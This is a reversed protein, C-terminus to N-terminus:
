RLNRSHAAEECDGKEQGDPSYGAGANRHGRHSSGRPHCGGGPQPCCLSFLKVLVSWFRDFPCKWPALKGAQVHMDSHSHATSVM